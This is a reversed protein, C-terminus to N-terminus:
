PRFILTASVMPRTPRCSPSSDCTMCLHLTSAARQSRSHCVSGIILWLSSGTPQRFRGTHQGRHGVPTTSKTLVIEVNGNTNKTGELMYTVFVWLSVFWIYCLPFFVFINYLLPM